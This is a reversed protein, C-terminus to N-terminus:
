SKLAVHWMAPHLFEMRWISFRKEGYKIKNKNKICNLSHRAAAKTDDEICKNPLVTQLYNADYIQMQMRIQVSTIHSIWTQHFHIEAPETVDRGRLHQSSSILATLRDWVNHPDMSWYLRHLQRPPSTHSNYWFEIYPASQCATKLTSTVKKVRLLPALFLKKTWLIPKSYIVQLHTINYVSINQLFHM